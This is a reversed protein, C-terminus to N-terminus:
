RSLREIAVIKSSAPDIKFKVTDGPNLGKLLDESAVPYGMTMADMLGEIAEHDLVIEGSAPDVAVVTGRGEVPGAAPAGGHGMAGMDM